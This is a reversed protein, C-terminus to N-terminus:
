IQKKNIESFSKLDLCTICYDPIPEETFYSNYGYASSDIRFRIKNRYKNLDIKLVIPDNIKYSTNYISNLQKQVKVEDNGCIFFIRGDRYIKNDETPQKWKPNISKNKIHNIYTEKNTIHYLIGNYENYVNDTIEQPKYPEFIISIKTQTDNIQKDYYNYLHVLNWFKINNLLEYLSKSDKIYMEFQTTKKREDVYDVGTIKGQFANYLRSYFKHADWSNLLTEYIYLKNQYDNYTFIDCGYNKDFVTNLFFQYTGEDIKVINNEKIFDDFDVLITGNETQCVADNPGIYDEKVYSFKPETGYSQRIKPLVFDKLDKM